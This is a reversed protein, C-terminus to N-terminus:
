LDLQKEKNHQYKYNNNKNKNLNDQVNLTNNRWKIKLICVTIMFNLQVIIQTKILFHKLCNEGVILSGDMNKHQDCNIEM